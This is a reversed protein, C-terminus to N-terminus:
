FAHRLEMLTDKQFQLLCDIPQCFIMKCHFILLQEHNEWFYRLTKKLSTGSKQVEELLYCKWGKINRKDARDQSQPLVAM